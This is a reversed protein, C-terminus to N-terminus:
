NLLINLLEENESKALKKRISEEPMHIPFTMKEIRNSIRGQPYKLDLEDVELNSTFITVKQHQLRYDLIRTFTEEVWDGVKEVGIDDLILVDVKKATDILDLKKVDTNEGFSKKIDGILDATPSYFISLPSEDTDYMKLLANLISAALRTKGSGKVKSYLYIGKGISRMHDFKRVFNGVMEKATKAKEISEEKEYISVDFSRVTAHKFEDPIHATTLKRELMRLERCKCRRMFERESLKKAQHDKIWILGTGDCKRYPCDDSISSLIEYRDASDRVAHM